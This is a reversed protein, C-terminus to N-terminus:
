NVVSILEACSTERQDLKAKLKSITPSSYLTENTIVPKSLRGHRGVYANIDKSLAQVHLSDIGLAWLEEDDKLDKKGARESFIRILFTGLSEDDTSNPSTPRDEHQRVMVPEARQSLYLEDLEKEYDSITFKKRVTGKDTRLMPKETTTFMVLDREVRGQAANSRNAEEITPWIEALLSAETDKNVPYTVPEILLSAQFRGPGAVVAAQVAPNSCVYKEMDVPNFKEANSFAIIDDVRGQNRWLGPLYPHPSYLENTSYERLEPYTCFIGQFLDCDEKRVFVLEFLDNEIPRLESGFLPSFEVYEWGEDHIITPYLAAETSGLWNFLKTLPAIQDGVSRALPGGAYAVYRLKKLDSLHGLDKSIDELLSPPSVIGNCDGHIQIHNVIDATLPRPPALVNTVENFIGYGFLFLYFGTHYHPFGNFMRSGHLFDSSAAKGGLGSILQHADISAFTGHSMVVPKPIGTSGSTQFVVFPEYRAEEFTKTFPYSPVDESASVDRRAVGYDLFSELSPLPVARM